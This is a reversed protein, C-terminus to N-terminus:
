SVAATSTPTSTTSRGNGTTAPESEVHAKVDNVDARMQAASGKARDILHTTRERLATRRADGREPDFLYALAAGLGLWRVAHKFRRIM